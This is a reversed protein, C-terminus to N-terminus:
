KGGAILIVREGTRWAAPNVDHIARRSGDPFRVMTEYRKIDRVASAGHPAIEPTSDIVGCEGCKAASAPATAGIAEPSLAEAPATGSVTLPVVVAFGLLVAAGGAAAWRVFHRKDAPTQM